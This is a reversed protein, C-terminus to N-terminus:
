SYSSVPLPISHSMGADFSGGEILGLPLTAPTMCEFLISTAGDAITAYTGIDYMPQGNRHLNPSLLASCEDVWGRKTLRGRVILGIGYRETNKQCEIVSFFLYYFLARDHWTRPLDVRM